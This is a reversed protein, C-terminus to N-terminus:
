QAVDIFQPYKALKKTILSVAVTKLSMYAAFHETSLKLCESALHCISRADLSHSKNCTIPFLLLYVNGSM